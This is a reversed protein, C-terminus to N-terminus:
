DNLMADWPVNGLRVEQLRAAADEAEGAAQPPAEPAAAAAAAAVKREVAAEVDTLYLRAALVSPQGPVVEATLILPVEAFLQLHLPLAVPQLRAPNSVSPLGEVWAAM